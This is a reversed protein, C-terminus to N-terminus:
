LDDTSKISENLDYVLDSFAFEENTGLEGKGGENIAGLM